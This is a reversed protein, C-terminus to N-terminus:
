SVTHPIEGAILFVLTVLAPFQNPSLRRKQVRFCQRLNAHNFFLQQSVQLPMFDKRTPGAALKLAFLQIIHGFAGWEGTGDGVEVRPVLLVDQHCCCRWVAVAGGRHPGKVTGPCVQLVGFLCQAEQQLGVGVPPPKNPLLGVGAHQVERDQPCLDGEAAGDARFISVVGIGGPPLLVLDELGQQVVNFDEEFHDSRVQLVDCDRPTTTCKLVPLNQSCESAVLSQGREARKELQHQDRVVGM